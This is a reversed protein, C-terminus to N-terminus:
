DREAPARGAPAGRGAEADSRSTIGSGCGDDVLKNVAGFHDAAEAVDTPLDLDGVRVEGTMLKHLLSRFLEGLLDRKRRHLDIKRDIAQIIEVIERQEDLPAWPVTFGKLKSASINAQSVGRSALKKLEAQASERGLFYNVFEPVFVDTDLTLRILYSAFVADRDSRFIATRGVLEYSNTRNFLLDGDDLRFAEFTPTDLDVHQLDRFVVQGDVQCNMRLIPYRGSARGKVSLGYQARKLSPELPVARWSEPVLGAETEKQAEGRLGRTFLHEITAQKLQRLSERLRTEADLLTEVRGLIIAISAQENEPPLPIVCEKLASFHRNYGRSELDINQCAYYFFRPHIHSKPKLIQTGDAGRAFRFDVYKLAKTHDGFVIVPLDQDILAAEDGTWGAILGQGQDVVPYRGIPLYNRKQIKRSSGSVSPALCNAITSTTWDSPLDRM